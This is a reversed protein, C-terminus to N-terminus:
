PRLKENKGNESCKNECSVTNKSSFVFFILKLLELAQLYIKQKLKLGKNCLRNM